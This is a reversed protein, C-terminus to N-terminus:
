LKRDMEKRQKDLYEIVERDGFDIKRVFFPTDGVAKLQEMTLIDPNFNGGTFHYFNTKRDM